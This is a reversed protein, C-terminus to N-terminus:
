LARTVGGRLPPTYLAIPRLRARQDTFEPLEHWPYGGGGGNCAQPSHDVSPGTFGPRSGRKAM